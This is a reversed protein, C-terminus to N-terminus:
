ESIQEKPDSFLFRMYSAMVDGRRCDDFHNGAMGKPSIAHARGIGAAHTRAQRSDGLPRYAPLITTRGQQISHAQAAKIDDPM